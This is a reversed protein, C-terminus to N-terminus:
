RSEYYSVLEETKEFLREVRDGYEPILKRFQSKIKNWEKRPNYIDVNISGDGDELRKVLSVLNGSERCHSCRWHTTEASMEAEKRCECCPFFLVEGNLYYKIKNDKFFSLALSKKSGM